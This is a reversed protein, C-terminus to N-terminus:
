SNTHVCLLASQPVIASNIRSYIFFAHSNCNLKVVKQILIKVLYRGFLSMLVVCEAATNPPKSNVLKVNRPMTNYDPTHHHCFQQTFVVQLGLAVSPLINGFSKALKLFWFNDCYVGGGGLWGNLPALCRPGYWSNCNLNGFGLHALVKMMQKTLGSCSRFLCILGKFLLRIQKIYPSLAYRATFV